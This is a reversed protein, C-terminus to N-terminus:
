RHPPTESVQQPRVGEPPHQATVRGRRGRARGADQGARRVPEALARVQSLSAGQWGAGLDAESGDMIVFLDGPHGQTVRAQVPMLSLVSPEAEALAPAPFSYSQARVYSHLPKEGLKVWGNCSRQTMELLGPHLKGM